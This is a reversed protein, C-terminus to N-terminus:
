NDGGPPILNSESAIKQLYELSPQDTYDHWAQLRKLLRMNIPLIALISDPLLQVKFNDVIKNIGTLAFMEEPILCGIACHDGNPMKYRIGTKVTWAKKHGEVFFYEHVRDIAQQSTMREANM